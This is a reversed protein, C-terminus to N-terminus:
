QVVADCRSIIVNFLLRNKEFYVYQLIRQKYADLFSYINLVIQVSDM